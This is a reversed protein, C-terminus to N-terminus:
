SNADTPRPTRRHDHNKTDTITEVDMVQRDLIDQVRRDAASWMEDLAADFKNPDGGARSLKAVAESLKTKNVEVARSRKWNICLQKLKTTLRTNM